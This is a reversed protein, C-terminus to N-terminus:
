EAIRQNTGCSQRIVIETTLMIQRPPTGGNEIIDILTDVALVGLRRIPQRVTTLPPTANVAPPLDDFGMVSIDEPVRRGEERLARLVGLAMGDSAAFIADPNASLLRKTEEYARQQTFDAVRILDPDISFGRENLAQRYGRLRDEGVSTNQPGAIAAIRQRGIRILHLVAQYAATVNDVDIYSARERDDPRGIVLFPTPSEILRPILPDGQETSAVIVGDLMGKSLVRPYLQKEEAETHLLFLSLIQNQANCGQSIGQILRPFYPDTFFNQVKRPIVLGIISSRDSALSRAALNPRYGTESVVQMVRERVQERVNPHGNIVRSVTSRSVGALRGIEELTFRESM